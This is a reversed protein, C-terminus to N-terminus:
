RTWNWYERCAGILEEVTRLSRVKAVAKAAAEPDDWWISHPANIQALVLDQIDSFTPNRKEKPVVEFLRSGTGM